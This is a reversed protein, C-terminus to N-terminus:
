GMTFLANIGLPPEIRSFAVWRVIYPCIGRDQAFELFSNGTTLVDDVILLPAAMNFTKYKDLAKELPIGGRPIGVVEQFQQKEQIMFALCDWDEETLFECEIKWHLLKGSHSTFDELKFLSM